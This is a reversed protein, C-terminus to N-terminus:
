RLENLMLNVKGSVSNKISDNILSWIYNKVGKKDLSVNTIVIDSIVDSRIKGSVSKGLEM